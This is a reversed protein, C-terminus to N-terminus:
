HNRFQLFLQYIARYIILLFRSNNDAVLYGSSSESQQSMQAFLKRHQKVNRDINPRRLM